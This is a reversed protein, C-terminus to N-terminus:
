EGFLYFFCMFISYYRLYGSSHLKMSISDCLNVCFLCSYFLFIFPSPSLSPSIYNRKPSCLEHARQIHIGNNYIVSMTCHSCNPGVRHVCMNRVILAPGGVTTAVRLAREAFILKLRDDACCEYEYAYGPPHLPHV